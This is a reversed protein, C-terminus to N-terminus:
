NAIKWFFRHLKHGFGAPEAFMMVCKKHILMVDHEACYKVAEDSEAGNQLWIKKIGAEVANRVIKVAENPKVSIIVGGMKEPLSKFDPYCKFGNLEAAESHIAFVNYGKVPLEKLLSNGFKYGKRSAGVVALTKENLFENVSKLDAM